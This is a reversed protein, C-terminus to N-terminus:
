FMGGGFNGGMGGMGGGMGGMNGNTSDGTEIRQLLAPIQSHVQRKQYIVLVSYPTSVQPSDDSEGNRSPVVVKSLKSWSQIRRITGKAAPQDFTKWTESAVLSPLLMELDIAVATPMRYYKTEMAEPDNEPSVRRKSNRLAMRYDELLSLVGDLRDEVQNVVMVGPVAFAIVGNGKSAEWSEPFAQQQIADQLSMSLDSTQCLDRVDFVAVKSGGEAIAPTTIWLVGDRLLWSLRPQTVLLDLVTRLSQDQIELTIPLRDSIKAAQLAIRDLRIDTSTLKAVEDVVAALSKAKFQVSVAQDLAARIPANNPADDVLIRRAPKRLAALLGAVQRHTRSIQRVFLVDGLLVAAGDIEDSNWSEPAITSTIAVKLEESNFKQDLLDGINYQVTYVSAKDNASQLYLIGGALRWGIGLRDLRDLLLYIPQDILKDTVPESPLIGIKELSRVDLITNIKTQQQVWTAVDSLSAEEFSVTAKASLRKDILEAPDIFKPEDLIPVEAIVPTGQQIPAAAAPTAVQASAISSGMCLIPLIGVSNM